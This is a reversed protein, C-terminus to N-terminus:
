EAVPLQLNKLAKVSADQAATFIDAVKKEGKGAADAATIMEPGVASFGPIYAFDKSMVENAKALEAFVDQGSFFKSLGEPTKVDGTAAVVLGQSVLPEIQTNFWAAFEMAEAPHDCNKTVGIGSGGDPGSMVGEGYDPLQAVKWNGENDTGEMDGALLAAEWAAGITGILKNSTLSNKFSDDWRNMVLVSKDDLMSQWFDAVTKAGEGTTDVKWKDGDVSYWTDGAAAAQGAFFNLAEDPEFAAIYKDQEAAKKAAEKFEDLTTPVEIGLKKFEDANYYYVLPGTDQPLGVVKDGVKMMNFAGEAFKDKYKNAEETVDKLLGKTYLEPTESYGVQALCPANDAKVDTELKKIMETAQGQWKEAKVQIDPHEDNWKKVVDNVKTMDDGDPLRHMYNIEVKEGSKAPKAEDGSNGGSSCAGLGLAAVAAMAILGSCTRMSKSMKVELYHTFAM